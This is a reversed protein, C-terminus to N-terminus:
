TLFMDKSGEEASGKRMRGPFPTGSICGSGGTFWLM